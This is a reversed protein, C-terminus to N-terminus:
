RNGKKTGIKRINNLEMLSRGAEDVVKSASQPNFNPDKSKVASFLDAVNKINATSNVPSPSEGSGKANPQWREINQLQYARKATGRRNSYSASKTKGKRPKPRRDGTLAKEGAPEPNVDAAPHPVTADSAVGADAVTELDGALASTSDSPSAPNSREEYLINGEADVAEHM